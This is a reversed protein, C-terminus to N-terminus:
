STPNGSFSADSWPFRASGTGLRFDKGWVVLCVCMEALRSRMREGIRDGLTDEKTPSTAPPLNAFNTTVITTRKQNYRSNLIQAVTDLVWTTPKTSGLDDLVLVEAEMVPRLLEYETTESRSNYSNQIQKLLDAYDCFLGQCGKEEILARLVGVALHTKGRGADGVLMLGRGDTNHPYDLVFQHAKFHANLMTEHSGTTEVSEYSQLTAHEHRRPINARELRRLAQRALRCSCVAAVRDGQADRTIRM